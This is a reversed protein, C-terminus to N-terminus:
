QNNTPPEKSPSADPKNVRTLKAHMVELEEPEFWEIIQKSEKPYYWQMVADVYLRLRFAFGRDGFCEAVADYFAAGAERMKAAQEKTM